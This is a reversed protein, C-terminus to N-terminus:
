TGLHHRHEQLWATEQDYVDVDGRDLFTAWPQRGAAGFTQTRARAVAQVEMLADLVEAPSFRGYGNCLAELRSRLDPRTQFGAAQWGAEGRLPVAYWALEAVDALVTGPEASDWDILAVPAGDRWISNWPGLDGHQVIQGSRLPVEGIRWVAAPPPAFGVVAEHYDRVLGALARLGEDALLAVPWPRGAPTGEIFTLVERGREDLGVVRPAGAFGVAELHRLLAHVTPTWPGISRRVTDGVRVVTNVYGGTLPIEVAGDNMVRVELLM